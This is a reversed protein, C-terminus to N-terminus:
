HDRDRTITIVHHDNAKRFKRHLEESAALAASTPADYLSVAERLMAWELETLAIEFRSKSPERAAM